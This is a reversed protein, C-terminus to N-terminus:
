IQGKGYLFARTSYESPGDPCECVISLGRGARERRLAGASCASRLPPRTKAGTIRRSRWALASDRSAQRRVGDKLQHPDRPCIGNYTKEEAGAYAEWGALTGM